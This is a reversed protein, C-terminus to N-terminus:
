EPQNANLSTLASFDSDVLGQEVFLRFSNNRYAVLCKCSRGDDITEACTTQAMWLAERGGHDKHDGETM